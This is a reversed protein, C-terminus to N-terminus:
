RLKSNNKLKDSTNNINEDLAINKVVMLVVLEGLLLYDTRYLSVSVRICKFSKFHTTLLSNTMYM